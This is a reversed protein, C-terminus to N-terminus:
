KIIYEFKQKAINIIQERNNFATTGGSATTSIAGMLNGFEQCDEITANQIFKYLFGANFSDGAGIADVVKENLFSPKFLAKGEHFSVSGRKGLKIVFTNGSEHVASLAGEISENKTLKLFENENPLFVDVFPLIEKLNLDWQEQPDGQPDFSTSLGYNKAERFLKSLESKLGPQLFCSSLHLHRAQAFHQLPIDDFHLQDMAGPHTIMARDEEANLVVTAGTALDESQIIMSTDVGKEILTKIVLDGFIDKGLKGIFAVKVGLSSLNCAFIASSSGITLMMKRALIEKGIQPSSDIQNLILDVNLEGVVLVDFKKM